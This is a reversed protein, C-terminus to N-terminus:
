DNNIIASMRSPKCQARIESRLLKRLLGRDVSIVFHFADDKECRDRHKRCSTCARLGSLDRVLLTGIEDAGRAIGAGGAWLALLAECTGCAFRTICQAARLSRHAGLSRAAWLAVYSQRASRAGNYDASLSARACGAGGTRLTLDTKCARSSGAHCTGCTGGASASGSAFLSNDSNCTLLARCKDARCAPRAAGTLGAHLTRASLGARLANNNGADNALRSRGAVLACSASRSRSAGLAYSADDLTPGVILLEVENACVRAERSGLHVVNGFDSGVQGLIWRKFDADVARQIATRGILAVAVQAAAPCVGNARSQHLGAHWGVLYSHTREGIRVASVLTLDLQQYSGLRLKGRGSFDFPEKTLSPATGKRAAGPVQSCGKANFQCSM